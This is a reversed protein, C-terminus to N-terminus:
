REKGLLNIPVKLYTVGNEEPPPFQGARINVQVAPIMLKPIALRSDRATRLEVFQNESIGRHVHINRMRHESLAHLHEPARSDPPYDHCLFVRTNDPLEYLRQISRYLQRADGGPFDARATGYDPAFLTDGVFAADGILYTISDNTHGPTNIVLGEIEGIDFTVGGEFLQDFQGGNPEMDEFNFIAQFRKQVKGIGKGIAIKGGVVRKLYPAATIHDAHAHTELIWEVTLGQDTIFAVILDASSTSTRGDKHEYDLVPDVIAAKRTKRDWVIYSFTNTPGHFFEKVQPNM